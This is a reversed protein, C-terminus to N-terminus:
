WCSQGDVTTGVMNSNPKLVKDIQRVTTGVSIGRGRELTFAYIVQRLDDGVGFTRAFTKGALYELVSRSSQELPAITAVVHVVGYGNKAVRTAFTGLDSLTSVNIVVVKACIMEAVKIVRDPIYRLGDDGGDFEIPLVNPPGPLYPLNAVVADWTEHSDSRVSRLWSDNNVNDVVFACKTEPFASAVNARANAIADKQIDIGAYEVGARILPLAPKASGCGLDLVSTVKMQILHRLGRSFTWTDLDSRVAGDKANAWWDPRSKDRSSQWLFTTLPKEPVCEISDLCIRMAAVAEAISALSDASPHAVIRLGAVYAAEEETIIEGPGMWVDVFDIDARLGRTELDSMATRVGVCLENDRNLIGALRQQAINRDSANILRQLRERLSELDDGVVAFCGNEDRFRIPPLVGGETKTAFLLGTAVVSQSSIRVSEAGLACRVAAEYLDIGRASRVSYNVMGGGPRLGVELPCVTRLDPSMRFEAHFVGREVEMAQLLVGNALTLKEYTPHSAPLTVFIREFFRSEDSDIDVKWHAAIAEVHNTMRSEVSFEEGVLREEVLLDTTNCQATEWEVPMSRLVRLLDKLEREHYKPDSLDLPRVGASGGADIPKVVVKGGTRGPETNQILKLLEEWTAELPIAIQEYKTPVIFDHSSFKQFLFEKFAPKTRSLAATEVTHFYLRPNIRNRYERAFAAADATAFEYPTVLGTWRVLKGFVADLVESTKRTNRVIFVETHVPPRQAEGWLYVEQALSPRATIVGLISIGLQRGCDRVANLLQRLKAPTGPEFVLLHHSGDTITGCKELLQNLRKTQDDTKHEILQVGRMTLSRKRELRMHEPVFAVSRPYGLRSSFCRDIAANLLADGMGCGVFVTTCTRLVTLLVDLASSAGSILKAFDESTEAGPNRHQTSSCLHVVTPSWTRTPPRFCADFDLQELEDNQLVRPSVERLRLAQEMCDDYNTTLYLQCQWGALTRHLRSPPTPRIPLQPLGSRRREDQLLTAIETEHGKPDKVMEEFIPDLGGALDSLRANWNPAGAAASVGAGVVPVCYGTRISKQIRDVAQEMPVGKVTHDSM